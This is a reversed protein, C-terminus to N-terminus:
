NNAYGALERARTWTGFRKQITSTDIDSMCKALSYSPFRQVESLLREDSYMVGRPRRLGKPWGKGGGKCERRMESQPLFNKHLDFRSLLEIFYSRNFGLIEATARRSYGLAAFGRVVDTFPEGFEKRVAMLKNM